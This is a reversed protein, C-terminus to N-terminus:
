TERGLIQGELGWIMPATSLQANWWSQTPQKTSQETLKAVETHPRAQETQNTSQATSQVNAQVGSRLDAQSVSSQKVSIKEAVSIAFTTLASM